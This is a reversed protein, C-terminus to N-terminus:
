IHEYGGAGTKNTLSYIQSIIRKKEKENKKAPLIMMITM